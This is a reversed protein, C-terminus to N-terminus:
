FIFCIKRNGPSIWHGGRGRRVERTWSPVFSYNSGFIWPGSWGIRVERTWSAVFRYNSGFSRFVSALCLLPQFSNSIVSAIGRMFIKSINNGWNWNGWDVWNDWPTPVTTPVQLSNRYLAFTLVAIAVILFINTFSLWSNAQYSSHSYDYDIEYELGCSDKLIYPDESHEYGECSVQIRGFKYRQDFDAECEWRVDQRQSGINSCIVLNPRPTSSCGASGGVCRLQPIPSVRRSNTLQGERLVISDVNQLLIRDFHSQAYCSTAIFMVLALLLQM